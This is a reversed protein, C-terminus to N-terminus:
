EMKRTRLPPLFSDDFIDAASPRKRFAHSEALQDLGAGFRQPDLAGRGNRKAAETLIDDHLV